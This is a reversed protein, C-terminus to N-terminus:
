TILLAAVAAKKAGNENIVDGVDANGAFSSDSAAQNGRRREQRHLKPGSM